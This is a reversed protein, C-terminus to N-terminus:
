YNSECELVINAYYSVQFGAEIWIDDKMFDTSCFHLYHLRKKLQNYLTTLALQHLENNENFTSGVKIQTIRYTKLEIPSLMQQERRFCMSSIISSSYSTFSPQVDCIKYSIGEECLIEPNM